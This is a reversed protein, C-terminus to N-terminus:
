KNFRGGYLVPSSVQEPRLYLTVREADPADMGEPADQGSRTKFHYLFYERDPDDVMRVIGRVEVYQMFDLPSMVCLTASPNAVLNKFKMRNKLTSIELEEGNWLYSVPNSSIRGDNHRITSLIGVPTNKFLEEHQTKILPKEGGSNQNDM